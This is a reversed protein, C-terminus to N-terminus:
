CIRLSQLVFNTVGLSVWGTTILAFGFFRKKLFMAVCMTMLVILVNYIFLFPSEFLFIIGGFINRRGMMELFFIVLVSIIVSCLIEGRKMRLVFRKKADSFINKLKNM